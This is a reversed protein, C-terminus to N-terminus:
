HPTTASQWTQNCPAVVRFLLSQTKLCTLTVVSIEIITMKDTFIFAKKKKWYTINFLCMFVIYCCVYIAAFLLFLMIVLLTSNMNFFICKAIYKTTSVNQETLFCVVKCPVGYSSWYSGNSEARVVTLEIWSFLHISVQLELTDVMCLVVGM